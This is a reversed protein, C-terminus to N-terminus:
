PRAGAPTPHAEFAAPDLLGGAYGEFAPPRREVFSAVGERYDPHARSVDLLALSRQRAQELSSELDAHIQHKTLAMAHPSCNVALDTAYEVARHVIEEPPALEQVLGYEHAQAATIVRGSLLLDTARGLGVLRPLLWSLADEAILGRRSMAPTLKATPVAFRVDCMLAQVYGLGACAGNIAAILPKPVSLPFTQPRRTGILSAYSPGGGSATDLISMDMGPCFTTGAGTVVIARVAPDSAAAELHGFYQTEIDVNWSNKREPRDFTLVLVGTPLLERRVAPREGDAPESIDTSM